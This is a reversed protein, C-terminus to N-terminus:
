FCSRCGNEDDFAVEAATKGESNKAAIQAGSQLLVQAVEVTECVHLPQDGDSDRSNVDAGVSLLFNLVEMRGYSSAAHLPTYGNEDQSNVDQGQDLLEQVRSLDGDGAAVWINNPEGDETVSNLLTNFDM